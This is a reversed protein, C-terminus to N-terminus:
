LHRADSDRGAASKEQGLERRTGSLGESEAEQGQSGQPMLKAPSKLKAEAAAKAAKNAAEKSASSEDDDDSDPETKWLRPLPKVPRHSPKPLEPGETEETEESDETELEFESESM